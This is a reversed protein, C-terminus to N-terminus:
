FGKLEKNIQKQRKNLFVVFSIIGGLVTGTVGILAIIAMNLGQSLEDNSNAGYCM